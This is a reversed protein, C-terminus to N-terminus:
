AFRYLTRVKPRKEVRRLRISPCLLFREDVLANAAVRPWGPVRRRRRCKRTLTRRGSYGILIPATCVGDGGQILMPFTGAYRSARDYAPIHSMLISMSSIARISPRREPLRCVCASTTRHSALMPIFHSPSSVKTAFSPEVVANCPPSIMSDHLRVVRWFEAQHLDVRNNSARRQHQEVRTAADAALRALFHAPRIQRQPHRPCQPSVFRVVRL